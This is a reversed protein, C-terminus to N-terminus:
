HRHSEMSVALTIPPAGFTSESGLGDPIQLEPCEGSRKALGSSQADFTGYCLRGQHDSLDEPRRSLSVPRAPLVVLHGPCCEAERGKKDSKEQVSAM